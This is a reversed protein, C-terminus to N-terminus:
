GRKELGDFDLALVHRVESVEERAVRVEDEEECAKLGTVPADRGLDSGNISFSFLGFCHCGEEETATVEISDLIPLPFTM